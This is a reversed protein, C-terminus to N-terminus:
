KEVKVVCLLIYTEGVVENVVPHKYLQTLTTLVHVQHLLLASFTDNLTIQLIM